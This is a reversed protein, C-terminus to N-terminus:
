PGLRQGGSVGSFPIGAEASSASSPLVGFRGFTKQDVSVYHPLRGLLNLKGEIFRLAWEPPALFKLYGLGFGYGVLLGALHGLFSSSPLLAATVVVLLLPTIWTPINYTSITFYPNTKYTRIAEMGLLLFVWMSAGMVPTNAHLIFREIFVYILGPITAFPGFFLAVSTLTGHEHEFRELLPTFAVINLITHFINLHIFPFTNIRYLTAIGIEDPILAGWTKVDWNWSKGVLTLVWTLVIILVTARTFLPLKLLYARTRQTNFTVAAGSAPLTQAAM